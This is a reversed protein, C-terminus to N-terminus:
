ANGEEEGVQWGQGNDRKRKKCLVLHMTTSHLSCLGTNIRAVAFGRFNIIVVEAPKITPYPISFSTINWFALSPHSEFQKSEMIKSPM